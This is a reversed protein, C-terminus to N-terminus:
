RRQQAIGYICHDRPLSEIIKQVPIAHSLAQRVAREKFIERKVNWGIYRYGPYDFETTKADCDAWAAKMEPSGARPPTDLKAADGTFQGVLVTEYRHDQTCEIPTYTARHAQVFFEAFCAGAKPEWGTPEAM